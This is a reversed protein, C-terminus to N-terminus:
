CNSTQCWQCEPTRLGNHKLLKMLFCDVSLLIVAFAPMLIAVKFSQVFDLGSSFTVVIGAVSTEGLLLLLFGVAAGVYSLVLLTRVTIYSKNM